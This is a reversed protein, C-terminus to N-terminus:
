SSFFLKCIQPDLDLDLIKLTIVPTGAYDPGILYYCETDENPYFRPYHPSTVVGHNLRFTTGCEAFKECVDVLLIHAALFLLFDDAKWTINFGRATIKEDSRFEIKIRNSESRFVRPTEYGCIKKLEEEHDFLFYYGGVPAMARSQHEQSIKLYDKSCESSQQIDFRNFYLAVHYGLPVAIDWLCYANNPYDSPSKPSLVTGNM